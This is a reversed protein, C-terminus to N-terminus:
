KSAVFIQKASVLAGLATERRVDPKMQLRLTLLALQIADLFSMQLRITANKTPVRVAPSQEAGIYKSKNDVTITVDVVDNKTKM